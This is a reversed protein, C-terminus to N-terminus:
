YVTISQIIAYYETTNNANYTETEKGVDTTGTRKNYFNITSGSVKAFVQYQIASKGTPTIMPIDAGSQLQAKTIKFNTGNVAVPSAVLKATTAGGNGNSYDSWTVAVVQSSFNVVIGAKLKSLDFDLQINQPSLRAIGSVNPVGGRNIIYFPSGNYVKTGVSLFSSYIKKGKYYLSNIKKGKYFLDGIKKGQMFIAM